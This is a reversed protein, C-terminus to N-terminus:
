KQDMRQGIGYDDLQFHNGKYERVMNEWWKAIQTDSIALLFGRIPRNFQRSRQICKQRFVGRLYGSTKPEAWHAPNKSVQNCILLWSTSFYLM